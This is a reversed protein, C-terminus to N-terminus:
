SEEPVCVSL